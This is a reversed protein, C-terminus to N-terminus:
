FANPNKHLEPDMKVNIKELQTIKQNRSTLPNYVEYFLEILRPTKLEEIHLGCNELGSKVVNVRQNLQKRLNEFESRHQKIKSMSDKPNLSEMFSKIFGPKQIKFPDQPIIVYFNKEMIDAYEILKQIYEIYDVTQMQLLKNQQKAEIKKLKAIYNDLDLKKSRVVIQIPFELSNLFNQYSFTISNQEEESKLHLNISSTKLVARLGGNKLIVTNDHIESIKIHTQTSAGPMKHGNKVTKKHQKTKTDTM